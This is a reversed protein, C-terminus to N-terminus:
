LATTGTRHVTFSCGFIVRGQEDRDILHPEDDPEIRLYTSGSLTLNTVANLRNWVRQVRTRANSPNAYGGTGVTSRVLIDISANGYAPAVRGMTFNPAGGAAELISVTLRTTEPLVNLFVDTGLTGIATSGTLYTGIEEIMGM